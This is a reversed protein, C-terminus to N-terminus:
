LTDTSIEKLIEKATEVDAFMPAFNLRGPNKTFYGALQKLTSKVDEYSLHKEVDYFEIEGFRAKYYSLKKIEMDTYKFGLDNSITAKALDNLLYYGIMQLNDKQKLSKDKTTKFDYLVGDIYIDADAGSVLLSSVGFSPNFIVNSKENIIEPIMFKEEFLKLLNDLENIVEDPSNEIIFYNREINEKNIRARFVQDLKALKVSIEYLDSILLSGDNIFVLVKEIWSELIEYPIDIYKNLKEFGKYAVLDRIATEDKLFQAIRFRALYDFATGVLSSNHIKSLNYPVHMNYEESFPLKGSLTYYAEKKPEVHLLIDKFEKDKKNKADLKSTLSM